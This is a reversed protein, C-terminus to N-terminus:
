FMLAFFVCISGHSGATTIDQKKDAMERFYPINDVNEGVNWVAATILILLSTMPFRKKKLKFSGDLPFSRDFFTQSLHFLTFFSFFFSGDSM